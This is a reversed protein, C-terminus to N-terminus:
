PSAEAPSTSPAASPTAAAAAYGTLEVYAEASGASVCSPFPSAGAQAGIRATVCQSGEWYVVGTTPRTDLEQDAVTPTLRVEIPLSGRIQITWGAPYTADTAPSTWSGTPTIRFDSGAITSVQSGRVLAGYALAQSGDPGRVVSLMVHIGSPPFGIAFWDWGGGVSIFDGWQHDFWAEGSVTQSVGDLVLQGSVQLSPRSYYYSGGSPGFSVWGNTDHLATPGNPSLSLDLGFGGGATSAEAPSLAATITDQGGQGALRWPAAPTASPNSPDFGSIRLDFGGPQGTADRPSQDVAPGIQSRQAYLFRNGSEDTLALHSAWTVPVDGREARFIVAEFGFHRGDATVLHGTYYWWETLRDHPGDDRPFVIAVPDPPRAPTASSSAPSAVPLPPNALLLGGSCGALVAVVLGAFGAQLSRRVRARM